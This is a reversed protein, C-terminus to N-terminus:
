NLLKGRGEAQISESLTVYNYGACKMEFQSSPKLFIPNNGEVYIGIALPFPFNEPTTRFFDALDNKTFHTILNYIEKGKKTSYFTFDYTEDSRESIFIRINEWTRLHNNVGSATIKNDYCLVFGYKEDSQYVFIAM